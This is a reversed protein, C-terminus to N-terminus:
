QVDIDQIIDYKGSGSKRHKVILIKEVSSMSVPMPMTFVYTERILNNIFHFAKKLNQFNPVKRYLGYGAGAIKRLTTEEVNNTVGVIFVPINHNKSLPGIRNIFQAPTKYDQSATDKGDTLVVSFKFPVKDGSNSLAQVGSGIADYLATNERQFPAKIWRKLEDKNNTFESPASVNTSFKIVQGEFAAPLFDVFQTLADEVHHLARDDISGSSDIVMNFRFMPTNKYRANMMLGLSNIIMDDPQIVVDGGGRKKLRIHVGDMDTAFNMYSTEEDISYVVLYYKNGKMFGALKQFKMHTAGAAIGQSPALLTILLVFIISAVSNKM